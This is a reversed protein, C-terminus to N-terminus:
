SALLPWDVCSVHAEPVEPVPVTEVYLPAPQVPVAKLVAGKETGVDHESPPPPEQIFGVQVCPLTPPTM